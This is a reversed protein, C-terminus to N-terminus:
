CAPLRSNQFAPKLAPYLQRFLAQRPALADILAPEPSLVFSIPPQPCAEDLAVGDTAMRALRAAGLARGVNGGQRYVLPRNLAAAIIRGWFRSRAGGGIVSLAGIPEAGAELAALGDALAFAVGELAARGLDARRSGNELGFFVGTAAPDNHPTREGSLYPLMVLRGPEAPMGAAEIEALFEAESAAGVLDTVFSLTGAASLIVAMRHWLAPICHCFAHVTRAPDPRAADDVVFIVGSSGLSLLAEGPHVVGVGLAGCANDSGGGAVPIGPRLGLQTAAAATVHGSIDPGEVLRPMHREELRCAALMPASWQRRELDLWLTGAADSPESVLDGTLRLRLWDKPLVVHAIRQFHDPENEAVWILKPATFGPMALNGTMARSGPERRELEGCQSWARGDNWLIAPRIVRQQADLLVAGHMQGSLGIGRVRMLSHRAALGSVAAVVASWWADPAQESWQPRPRSISLPALSEALMEGADDILVAKVGSTGLDIGLLM